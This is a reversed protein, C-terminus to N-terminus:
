AFYFFSFLDPLTSSLLNLIFRYYFIETGFSIHDCIVVCFVFYLVCVPM